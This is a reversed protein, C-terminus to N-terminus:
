KRFATRNKHSKNIRVVCGTFHQGIQSLPAETIRTQTEYLVITRMKKPSRAVELTNLGPINISPGGPSYGTPQPPMPSEGLPLDVIGGGSQNYVCYTVRVKNKNVPHITVVTRTAPSSRKVLSQWDM